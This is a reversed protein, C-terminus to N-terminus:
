PTADARRVNRARAAQSEYLIDAAILESVEADSMALFSGMVERTHEGVQPAPGRVVATADSFRFPPQLVAVPGVEPYHVEGFSRRDIFYRHAQMEMPSLVPGSSIREEALLLLPVDRDDFTGLWSEIAEIIDGSHDRRAYDDCYREDEIMDPRGILEALRAWPSGHGAGSAHITIDGCASRFPGMPYTYSGQQGNRFVRPKGTMLAGPLSTCDLYALAEVMSIDIHQGRGTRDRGFLAALIATSGTISAVTDGLGGGVHYPAGDREGTIYTIGSMAQAIPDTCARALDGDLGDQGFGTLSCMVIRPNIAALDSYGLGFGKMVRPTMNEVVVDVKPILSKILEVGRPEKLNVAISQKGGDTHAILLSSLDGPERMAEYTFRDPQRGDGAAPWKFRPWEVHIVDAGLDRLIRTCFPGVAALTFDLVVLGELLDQPKEQAV